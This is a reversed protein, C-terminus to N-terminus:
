ESAKPPRGRKPSDAAPEEGLKVSIMGLVKEFNETMRLLRLQPDRIFQPWMLQEIDSEPIGLRKSIVILKESIAKQSVAVKQNIVSPHM